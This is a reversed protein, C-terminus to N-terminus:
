AEHRSCRSRGDASPRPKPNTPRAAETPQCVQKSPRGLLQRCKTTPPRCNTGLVHARIDQRVPHQGSSQFAHVFRAPRSLLRRSSPSRWAGGASQLLRVLSYIGACTHTHRPAGPCAQSRGGEGGTVYGELSDIGLSLLEEQVGKSIRLM